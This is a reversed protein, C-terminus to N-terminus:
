TSEGHSRNGFQREWSKCHADFTNKLENGRETYILISHKCRNCVDVPDGKTGIQLNCMDIRFDATCVLEFIRKHTTM